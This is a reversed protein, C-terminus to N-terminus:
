GAVPARPGPARGMAPAGAPTTRAMEIYRCFANALRMQDPSRCEPAFLRPSAVILALCRARSTAVNLRNLSYLFDMGRPADEASSTAMSYIVVAAEQGQFKDVTGIRAGRLRQGLASVQANYPAVILIQALTLPQERGDKDVFTARGVARGILAAVAEVEEASENQNGAHDVALFRLGSGDLPEPGHVVQRELGPRSVLLGRYFLESTFACVDPHLRWTQELFLGRDRGVTPEGGLLHDLASVDSGPPHVGQQPQELQRPDGLLLLSKAAPAVAVTNALSFQGAEDIFLVDVSDIMDQRSWLWATGAALLAGDRLAAAVEQSGVRTLGAVDSFQDESASQVGHLAVGEAACARAVEEILNCIVKHSNATIGVRRREKLLAVIMRAGTYTKGSGPPGQVPLVSGDLTTAIRLAADLISEGPRILDKGSPPNTRPAQSVLLDTVSRYPHAGRVGHEVIAEAVRRISERLARDQVTDLPVLAAPHPVRSANGRKLDITCAADDVDVVVGAASQTAPDHVTSGAGIEHEQAPFLYRHLTSRMVQGVVGLYELGGLTARDEVLEQANLGVRHFYEWWMSKKERRHYQLLQVVLWRAHQEPTREREDAPVGDTLRNALAEIEKLQDSLEDPPEGDKVEPRPVPAGAKSEHEHRLSELWDALRLTSVCDDRNYGEVEKLFAHDRQGIDGAELWAEMCALAGRADALDVDRFYGYFPELKKISYSEVSARLGQRVVRHLDVFVGGRLLRDVETERTAYRGMLRKVATTEYAGFHFVHLAPHRELRAMLDDIFSEFAAKEEERTFAWTIRYEGERDVAGFLYEIGSGLAYPDGELDFFLDGPSPEPLAALGYGPAVPLILEHRPENADRGEVQLRAQERVRELAIRSLGDPVQELPSKLRALQAMTSVPMTALATRQRRSIGAVYSLHDVDRREADCRLYWRCIDCHAAPEPAKELALVGAIHDEFRRKVSRLYAAFDAVRFSERRAAPGGLELHMHEPATGQLRELLWSYLSIQLVAGAKAERALKADVVEYSRAGLAGPVRVRVLFDPFGLWGADTLCGQYVVDVGSRMAAVTRGARHANREARSVDEGHEVEISTVSLGAREFGALVAQEHDLGRKKLLELSPDDFTRPAPIRGRALERDLLSVHGCASFNSLDTASFLLADAHLQM